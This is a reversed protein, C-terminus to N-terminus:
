ATPTPNSSRISRCMRILSGVAVQIPVFDDGDHIMTEIRKAEDTILDFGYSGGQSKILRTYEEDIPQNGRSQAVTITPTAVLVALIAWSFLRLHSIM